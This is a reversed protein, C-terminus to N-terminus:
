PRRSNCVHTWLKNTQQVCQGNPQREVPLWLCLGANLPLAGCQARDKEDGGQMRGVSVGVTDQTAGRDAVCMCVVQQLSLVRGPSSGTSNSHSSRECGARDSSRSCRTCPLVSSPTTVVGAVSRSSPVGV